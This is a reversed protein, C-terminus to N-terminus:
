GTARAFFPKPRGRDFFQIDPAKLSNAFVGSLITDNETWKGMM